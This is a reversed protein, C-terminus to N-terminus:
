HQAARNPWEDSVRGLLGLYTAPFPRVLHSNVFDFWVFTSQGFRGLKDARASVERLAESLTYPRTHNASLLPNFIRELFSHRVHPANLVQVSNITCPLTSNQDIQLDSQGNM